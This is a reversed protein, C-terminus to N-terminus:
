VGEANNSNDGIKPIPPPSTQKDQSREGPLPGKDTSPTETPTAGGPPAGPGAQGGAEPAAEFEPLEKIGFEDRLTNIGYKVLEPQGTAILKFAIQRALEKDDPAVDSAYGLAMRLADEDIAFRDFLSQADGSTDQRIKLRSIDYHVVLNPIQEKEKASMPITELAPRLWGVTLSSAILQLLPVLHVRLTSEDTQWASWSTSSESGLLVEPPVDMGLALRRIAGLRLEPVEASFATAFDFHKIKDIFEAPGRLIIPVLASASERNKIALGMVETLLAVFRDVESGEIEVDPVPLDIEEPIGLFGAGALRSTGSAYVHDDFLVLERLVQFSGKVPSDADWWRVPHPRWIRVAVTSEPISVEKANGPMQVYIKGNRSHVEETSYVRWQDFPQQESGSGGSSPGIIVSDGAVSLHLGLRDLLEAQGALGGAFDAMIQSAPHDDPLRKPAGGKPDAEGVYLNAVSLANAIYRTTYRLEPVRGWYHWALATTGGNNLIYDIVQSNYLLSNQNKAELAQAAAILAKHSGDDDDFPNFTTRTKAM